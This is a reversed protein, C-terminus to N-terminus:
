WGSAKFVARLLDLREAENMPRPRAYDVFQIPLLEVGLYRGDYFVHRDIFAQRTAASIDYQDFFLNGLGYHIFAQGVFEFGQPQHAQSGSVIVAGAQAAARFDSEQNPQARYTYYEYHQFTAVPLYGLTRLEAIAGPMWDGSCPAAGPRDPGAAALGKGNCGIFALRNGNHELFAPQRGEDLNAGGGYYAWGRERYLQLTFRMAQGGWDQFHDGTLEIVDAGVAELLAIYSPDSCFRLDAQSPDPPPCNEAFPVENSVHTIDAARLWDGVDKAPYTIGRRQMTFATARVLATVGTLALTTLRAPDRNTALIQGGPLGVWAATLPLILPYVTADFEKRLPSQGDVELVKWRPELAEFPLLAYAPRRDWATQLLREEEQVEVAGPAPAGWLLTFAGLTQPSLLLPRGSFVGSTQGSWAARLEASSAGQALTPFPAALAFVWRVAPESTALEFRLDASQPAEVAQVLEYGPPLQIGALLSAPLAAPSWVKLALPGSPTPTLTPTPTPQPTPTPPSPQFPTLSPGPRPLAGSSEGVPPQSFQELGRCAGALLAWVTIFVIWRVAPRTSIRM